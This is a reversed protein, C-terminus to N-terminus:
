PPPSPTGGEELEVETATSRTGSKKRRGAEKHRIYENCLRDVAQWIAFRDRTDYEAEIRGEAASAEMMGHVQRLKQAVEKPLRFNEWQKGMAQGRPWQHICARVMVIVTVLLLVLQAWLERIAVTLKDADDVTM